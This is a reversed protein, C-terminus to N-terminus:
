TQNHLIAPLDTGNPTLNQCRRYILFFFFLGTPPSSDTDWLLHPRCAEKLKWLEASKRSSTYVKGQIYSLLETWYFQDWWLVLYHLPGEPQERPCSLLTYKRLWQLLLPQSQTPPSQTFCCSCTLDSLGARSSVLQTAKPFNEWSVLGWSERTCLSSLM